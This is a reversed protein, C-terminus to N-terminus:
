GCVWQACHTCLSRAPHQCSARNQCPAGPGPLAAHRRLSDDNFFEPRPTSPTSAIAQNPLMIIIIIMLFSDQLNCGVCHSVTGDPHSHRAADCPRISHGYM